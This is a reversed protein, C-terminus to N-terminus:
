QRIGSDIILLTLRTPHNLQKQFEEAVSGPPTPPKTIWDRSWGIAGRDSASLRPGARTAALENIQSGIEIIQNLTECARAYSDEPVKNLPHPKASRARWDFSTPQHNLIFSATRRPGTFKVAFPNTENYSATAM